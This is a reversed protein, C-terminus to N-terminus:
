VEEILINHVAMMLAKKILYDRTKFGKVDVVKRNGYLDFYEFDAVYHMVRNSDVFRVPRGNIPFDFKVQFKLGKIDGREQLAKLRLYERAEKRSDFTKDEITTKRNGYKRFPRKM